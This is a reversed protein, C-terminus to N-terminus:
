AAKRAVKARTRAVAKRRERRLLRLVSAERADLGKRIGRAERLAEALEGERYLDFVDPHVYCSRCVAPTNGLQNAVRKVADVVNHKAEIETEFPEFEALAHTALVTGAWTRFDKATFDEGTAERLYANVDSSDIRQRQGDSDLYQFLEQGRIEQCQKIVRAL